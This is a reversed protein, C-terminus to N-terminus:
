KEVRLFHCFGAFDFKHGNFKKRTVESYTSFSTQFVFPGISNVGAEFLFWVRLLFDRPPNRCVVSPIIRKTTTKLQTCAVRYTVTSGDTPRDM